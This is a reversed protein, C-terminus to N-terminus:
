FWGGGLGEEVAKGITMGLKPIYISGGTIETLRRAAYIAEKDRGAKLAENLIGRLFNEELYRAGIGMLEIDYDVM